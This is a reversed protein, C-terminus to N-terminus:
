SGWGPLLRLAPPLDRGIMAMVDRRQASVLLLRLIRLIRPHGIEDIRKVFDELSWDVSEHRDTIFFEQFLLIQTM